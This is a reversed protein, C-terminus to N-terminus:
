PLSYSRTLRNGLTQPIILSRVWLQKWRKSQFLSACEGYVLYDEHQLSSLGSSKCEAGEFKRFLHDSISDQSLCSPSLASEVDRVRVDLDRDSFPFNLSRRLMRTVSLHEAEAVPSM